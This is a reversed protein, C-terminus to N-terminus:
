KFLKLDIAAGMAQEGAVNPHLHDGRELSANLQSPDAPDSVPKAFDVVGDANGPTMLWANVALRVKEKDDSYYKSGKFPLIPSVIVKIGHQHARDIIQKYAGILDDATIVRATVGDVVDGSHGIDNIGELMVVYGVNPLSLVDRDFRALAGLGSRDQLICNGSLSENAVAFPKHAALLREALVDSWRQSPKSADEGLDTISDGYAVITRANKALVDVGAFVPRGRLTKEPTFETAMVQNGTVLGPAPLNGGHSTTIPTKDPFFLSVTVVQGDAIPANVPDSLAPANAAIVFDGRGSVTVPVFKQVGGDMYGVSAAGIHLDAPGHENSLVLRFAEGGLSVRVQFRVTANEIAQAKAPDSGVPMSAYSRVWVPEKALAPAAILSLCLGATAIFRRM